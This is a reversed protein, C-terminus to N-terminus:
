LLIKNVNSINNLNLLDDKDSGIFCYIYYYSGASLGNVLHTSDGVFITEILSSM